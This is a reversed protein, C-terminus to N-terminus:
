MTVRFPGDMDTGWLASHRHPQPQVEFPMKMVYGWGLHNIMFKQTTPLVLSDFGCERWATTFVQVLCTHGM